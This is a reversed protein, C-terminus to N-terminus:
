NSETETEEHEQEAGASQEDQPAPRPQAAADSPPESAAAPSEGEEDPPAAEAASAAAAQLSEAAAPAPAGSTGQLGPLDDLSKLGFAELFKRTTGYLLPRGLSDHRGVIKVLEKEVLARLVADVQVGRIAEVDARLIPQKYAVIALTELAAQSLKSRAAARSLKAVWPAYDKRTLLQYGGAIEELAFAHGQEYYQDRLENLARRVARGDAFDLIDTIRKLPIPEDTAFLLAEVITKLDDTLM